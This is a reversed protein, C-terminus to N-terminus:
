SPVSEITMAGSADWGAYFLEVALDPALQSLAKAAARLDEEQGHRVPTRSPQYDDLWRYWGCDQHAILIMRKLSHLQILVRSWKRSVWAFKPLAGVEVLCQPGGPVVVSDYNARLNLNEDLFERIGAQLRHDSCYVALVDTEALQVASKCQYAM